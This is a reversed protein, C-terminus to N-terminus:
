FERMGNRASRCEDLEKKEDVTPTIRSFSQLKEFADKQNPESNEEVPYMGNFMAVFGKM